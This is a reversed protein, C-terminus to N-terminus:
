LHGAHSFASNEEEQILRYSAAILLGATETRLRAAGLSLPVFGRERALAVEEASFDGEPGILVLM